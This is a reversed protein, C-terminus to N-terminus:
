HLAARRATNAPLGAFNTTLYEIMEIMPEPHVPDDRLVYRAETKKCCVNHEDLYAWQLQIMARHNTSDLIQISWPEVKVIGQQVVDHFFEVVMCRAQSVSSVVTVGTPNYIPLPYEFRAIFSDVDGDIIRQAQCEAFSQIQDFHM